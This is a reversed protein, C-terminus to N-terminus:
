TTGLKERLLDADLAACIEDLTPLESGGCKRCLPKLEHVKNNPYGEPVCFPAKGKMTRRCYCCTYPM